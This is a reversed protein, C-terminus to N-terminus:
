VVDITSSGSAEEQGPNWEVVQYLESLRCLAQLGPVREAGAMGSYGEKIHMAIVKLYEMGHTNFLGVTERKLWKRSEEDDFSYIGDSSWVHLFIIQVAGYSGLGKLRDVAKTLMASRVQAEASGILIRAVRSTADLVLSRDRERSMIGPCSAFNSPRLHGRWADSLTLGLLMGVANFLDAGCSCGRCGVHKLEGTPSFPQPENMQLPNGIAEVLGACTEPTIGEYLPLSPWYHRLVSLLEFGLARSRLRDDLRMIRTLVSALLPAQCRVHAEEEPELRLYRLAIIEPELQSPELPASTPIPNHQHCDECFELFQLLMPVHTVWCRSVTSPSEPDGLLRMVLKASDRRAEMPHNSCRIAEIWEVYGMSVDGAGSRALHLVDLISLFPNIDALSRNVSAIALTM